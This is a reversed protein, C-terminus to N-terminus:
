CVDDAGMAHAIVRDLLIKAAGLGFGWQAYTRRSTRGLPDLQTAISTFPIM